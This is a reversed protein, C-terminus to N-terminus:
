YVFLKQVTGPDTVCRNFGVAKGKSLVVLALGQELSLEMDSNEPPSLFGGQSKILERAALAKRSDPSALDIFVQPNIKVMRYIKRIDAVHQDTAM